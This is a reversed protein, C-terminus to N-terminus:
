ILSLGIIKDDEELKMIRIGQTSRSLVPISELPIKIVQGKLSTFIASQEKVVLAGRSLFGTKEKIKLTKIGSGGRKQVRYEKLSTKKAYGKETVVLISSQQKQDKRVIILDRIEDDEKVRMGKVGVSVRSLPRVEKESFRISQGKKTILIVDDEGFSIKAGILRDGKAIKLAIIGNKRINQYESLKTKKIIGKETALFLYADVEKLSVPTIINVRENEPLDLYSNISKGKSTRSGELIEYAKLKFLRGNETFILLDDKLNCLFTLYLNDDENEFLIVGKGGRKQEKLITPKVRKIYGKQSFVILTEESPILDEFSGKKPLQDVIETRREDQYKEKLEQVEQKIIKKIEQPHELIFTYEKILKRKEELENDIKEKELRALNSLKMELIANAQVDSFGFKKQLKIFADERSLSTKILKIIEDIHNLAKQLGELIHAREQAKKLLFNTRRFIVQERHKIYEQLLGKLSLIEPQLGNETLALFNFYIYKELDTYHYLQNLVTKALANNKLEIVIRLGEKDSEDRLDKIGEIKKEEVLQAIRKLLQAKNVQYPIETFIIKNEEEDIGGRARCLVRGKGNFYAELLDKKGYIIGGTPFDPGKIFEMLDEVTADPHDILYIIGECVEKLNHPPITTAMGVAIGMTGNLILQPVKAPLYKPELRTGDYNPMFDVTDKEIDLLMEEALPTLRCETYRQAAPPDGDLSGFNGQGEILPYRLSFDQAMRVLAEYVAMDGHPHYRGLTSGVVTASKRFKANSRLGEEYMVYLIRRQVPKLGDRVDPLARSIIVSMAYDLYSERLEESINRMVIRNELNNDGQNNKSNNLKEKKKM